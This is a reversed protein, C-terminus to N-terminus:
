NESVDDEVASVELKLEHQDKKIENTETKIKEMETEMSALRVLMADQSSQINAQGAKLAVLMEMMVDLWDELKQTNFKPPGPNM